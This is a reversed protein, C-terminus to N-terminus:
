SSKKKIFRVTGGLIKGARALPSPGKGEAETVDKWDGGAPMAGADEPVGADVVEGPALGTKAIEWSVSVKDKALTALKAEILSLSRRVQELDFARRCIVKWCGDSISVLRATELVAALSPKEERVQAVLQPWLKNLPLAQSAPPPIAKPRQEQTKPAPMGSVTSARLASAAPVSSAAGTSLRRELEELRRVWAALDGAAELCGFLGLELTLRPTEGFRLDELTKNVREL